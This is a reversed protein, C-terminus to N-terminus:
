CLQPAGFDAIKVNESSDLLLNEPKLDRHVVMNRHLYDVGSIIQQFFRRAKAESLRECEVILDFLEGGPAYEVFLFIEAPNQIVEYLRIIHPHMFLKLINIERMVKDGMNLSNIRKRNLIKVAVEHGTRVHQALRVEGFSGTGLKRGVLYDGITTAGKMSEKGNM